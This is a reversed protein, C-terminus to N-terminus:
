SIPDAYLKGHTANLYGSGTRTIEERRPSGNAFWSITQAARNMRNRRQQDIIYREKLM